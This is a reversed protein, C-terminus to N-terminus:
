KTMFGLSSDILVPEGTLFSRGPPSREGNPLRAVGVVGEAWGVGARVLFDDRSPDYIMVKARQIGTGASAQLAAERFLTDLSADSLALSGFRAVISHREMLRRGAGGELAAPRHGGQDRENM